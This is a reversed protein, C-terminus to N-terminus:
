HKAASLMRDLCLEVRQNLSADARLINGGCGLRSYKLCGADRERLEVPYLLPNRFM